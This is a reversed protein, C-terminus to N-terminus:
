ISLIADLKYLLYLWEAARKSRPKKFQQQDTFSTNPTVDQSGVLSPQSDDELMVVSSSSQQTPQPEQSFSASQSLGFNVNPPIEDIASLIRKLHTPMWSDYVNKTFKYATWKERGDLETFYFKHIPYRYFTTKSAGIVPYHGYIRVSEHDHSISFSLIERDVDKERKVLQFLEVIARVAVTMSHANQRDAIDLAAAGCKVECTLFPFYMYYTAMFYSTDTLGGVFPELKNLQEETFASRGFGVAYDPQPRPKTVPISNNWGENVSEVLHELHEAGFDALGEASPVILRTIDQIVKAENKGQIRQCTSEFVHDSFRALDPVSQGLELLNRCLDKSEKRPGEKDKNMFSGKTGLLITYGAHRYTASKQERPKQDSPTPTAPISSGPQAQIPYLSSASRKRALLREMEPIYYTKLWIEEEIDRNLYERTRDDAEFYEKPWSGEKRWHDIPDIDETTCGTAKVGSSVEDPDTHSARM